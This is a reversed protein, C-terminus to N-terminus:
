PAAEQLVSTDDLFTLMEQRFSSLRTWTQSRGLMPVAIYGRIWLHNADIQHFNAQYHKGSSPDYIKGGRWSNGKQTFGKGLTRGVLPTSQLSRDPNNLDLLTPDLTRVIKMSVTDNDQALLVVADKGPVVWYGMVGEGGYVVQTPILLVLSIRAFMGGLWKLARSYNSFPYM